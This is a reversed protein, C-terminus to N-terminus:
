FDLKNGKKDFKIKLTDIVEKVCETVNLQCFKASFNGSELMQRDLLDDMLYGMLKCANNAGKLMGAEEADRGRELLKETIMVVTEIPAKMNHSVTAQTHRIMQARREM